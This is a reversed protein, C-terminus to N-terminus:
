IIKTQNPFEVHSNPGIISESPSLNLFDGVFHSPITGPYSHEMYPERFLNKKKASLFDLLAV